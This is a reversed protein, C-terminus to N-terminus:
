GEASHIADLSTRPHAKSETRSLISHTPSFTAETPDTYSLFATSQASLFFAWHLRYRQLHSLASTSTMRPSLPHYDIFVNTVLECISSRECKHEQAAACGFFYGRRASERTNIREVFCSFCM